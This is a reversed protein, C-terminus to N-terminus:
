ILWLYIPLLSLVVTILGLIGGLSNFLRANNESSRTYLYCLILAAVGLMLCVMKYEGSITAILPAFDVNDTTKMYHKIRMYNMTQAIAILNFGLLGTVLSLVAYIQKNVKSQSM